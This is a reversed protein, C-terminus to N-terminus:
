MWKVNPYLDEYTRSRLFAHRWIPDKKESDYVESCRVAFDIFNFDQKGEVIRTGRGVSQRFKIESKGSQLNIITKVPRIDTGTNICSTGVLIPIEGDNFREVLEKPDSKHFRKPLKSSADISGGHAFAVEHRLHPLLATMQEVEDILIVVQHGLTAVSKNAFDAAVQIVTPNYLFHTRAMRLVDDSYFTSRSPIKVMRFHPKALFGQNVGEEVTMSYVVPGIIGELLMETGDNRMQTASYFSRYPANAFLNLCVKSFTTAPVLHSEDFAVFEAKSLSKWAASGKTVRVLSAAIAIVFDKNFDKKGSGFFGVRKKGFHYLFDDYLQNAISVSPAVIVSRVGLRKAQHIICASKGLGTAISVAGHKAEILRDVAEQQYPRLTHKPDKFWPVLGHEPYEVLSEFSAPGFADEIYKRLGSYTYLGKEDEFLLCKHQKQELEELREQFAEEGYKSAFWHNRKFKRYEMTAPKHSFTLATALVKKGVIEEYGELRIKTPTELIIKM